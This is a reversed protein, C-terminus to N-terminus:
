EVEEADKLPIKATFLGKTAEYMGNIKEAELQENVSLGFSAKKIKIKM